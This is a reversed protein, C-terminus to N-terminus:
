SWIKGSLFAVGLLSFLEGETITLNLDAVAVVDKYEKRLGDIIIAHM